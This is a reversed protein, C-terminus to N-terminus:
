LRRFNGFGNVMALYPSASEQTIHKVNPNTNHTKRCGNSCYRQNPAEKRFVKGCCLCVGNVTLIKPPRTPCKHETSWEPIAAGCNDCVSCTKLNDRLTKEAMDGFISWYLKKHAEKKYNEGSFLAKTIFPYCYELSGYKEILREIALEIIMNRVGMAKNRENPPTEAVSIEISLSMSDLKKFFSVMEPDNEEFPGPMLMQWNFPAVDAFNMRIPGIDDFAACIRNMTSNTPKAYKESPKRSSRGNKSYQFFWPMPARQGGTAKNIRQAIAPFDTYESCAGTKAGDIRQNNLFTLLAAAHIDPTKRNWLCTLMNSIEGINSFKHARKLGNFLTEKTIIEAGAKNADYFLPVIDLEKINREAAHVIVQETVVNLQDGDVDFQLIRSILDHCSTYIANTFFWEYIKPDDVITRVAHEMYLSPSRLIDAKKKNRLPKCAVEGDKLLGTPIKQKLFYFECAAYLDPLVFVRKNACKIAGSKADYLLKKKIDKLQKRSYYDRLIEPYIYLARGYATEGSPSAGLAQLMADKNKTLNKLRAHAKRTYEEIENDTMVGINQIMQYNLQKDPLYEEEYNTKGCKCGFKKFNTKYEDWSSYYKGMKFQSSTLIIQINEKVLDHKTGWMDEIVPEVNNVECFKLYDFSGLLGKIWSLRIMFNIKSVCPLMMGAGDIHNIMVTRFGRECSYDPKIYDVVGGVESEWDPVVIVRDIDFDEWVDTASNALAIYALLKNANCGGHSNIKDFTLGCMIRDHIKAWMDLSICSLKDTRLQGASSTLYMYEKTTVTGDDQLIDMTFGDKVIQELVDENKWKIILKDFTHDLHHLGMARSMESEFECIKRSIKLTKWTIGPANQSKMELVSKLRVKRPKGAHKAIEASLEASKAKRRAILTTKAWQLEDTKNEANDLKDIEHALDCVEMYINFEKDTFLDYANLSILRIQNKLYTKQGM